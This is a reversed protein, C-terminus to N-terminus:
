AYEEESPNPSPMARAPLEAVVAALPLVLRRFTARQAPSLNGYARLLDALGPDLPRPSPAALEVAAAALARASPAGAGELCALADRMAHFVKLVSLLPMQLCNGREMRSILGQSTQARGALEEQSWGLLERAARLQRSIGAVLLPWDVPASTTRGPRM